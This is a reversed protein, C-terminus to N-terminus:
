NNPKHLDELDTLRHNVIKIREEIVPIRQAFDNHMRVERTLESIREDTVAQATGISDQTKKNARNNTIIVGILSLVGVIVASGAAILSETM